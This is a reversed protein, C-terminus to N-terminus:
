LKRLDEITDTRLFEQKEAWVIDPQFERAAERVSRNIEDVVPGRQLQRQLQRKLWSTQKWPESTHVGHVMHGLRELARMRMLSTQGSGIEGLFLIKMTRANQRGFCGRTRMRPLM